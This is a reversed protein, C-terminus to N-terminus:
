NILFIRWCYNDIKSFTANVVCVITINEIKAKNGLLKDLMMKAEVCDAKSKFSKEYFNQFKELLTNPDIDEM